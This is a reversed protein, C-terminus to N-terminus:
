LVLDVTDGEPTEAIVVTPQVRGRSFGSAPLRRRIRRKWFAGWRCGWGGGRAAQRAAGLHICFGSLVIFLPVGRFGVDQFLFLLSSRREPHDMLHAHLVRYVQKLDGIAFESLM